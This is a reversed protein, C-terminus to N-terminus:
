MAIFSKLHKMFKRDARFPHISVLILIEIATTKSIHIRLREFACEKLGIIDYMDGLWAVEFLHSLGPEEPKLDGTLM